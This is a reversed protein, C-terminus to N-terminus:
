EAEPTPGPHTPPHTPPLDPLPVNCGIMHCTLVRLVSTGLSGSTHSFFIEAEKM